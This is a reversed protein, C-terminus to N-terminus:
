SSPGREELAHFLRYKIVPLKRPNELFDRHAEKVVPDGYNLYVHRIDWEGLCIQSDGGYLHFTTVPDDSNLANVFSQWEQGFKRIDIIEPMRKKRRFRAGIKNKLNSKRTNVLRPECGIRERLFNLDSLGLIPIYGPLSRHPKTLYPIGEFRRELALLNSLDHSFLGDSGAFLPLGHFRKRWDDSDVGLLIQKVRLKQKTDLGAFHNKIELYLFDRYQLLYRDGLRISKSYDNEFSPDSTNWYGHFVMGDTPIFQKMGLRIGKKYLTIICLDGSSPLGVAGSGFENQFKTMLIQGPFDIPRNIQKKNYYIPVECSSCYFQIEKKEEGLHTSHRKLALRYGRVFRDVKGYQLQGNKAIMIQQGSELVFEPFNMIASLIAVGHHKELSTLAKQRFSPNGNELLQRLLSWETPNFHAGDQQIELHRNGAYIYICEPEHVLAHRILQVPYHVSNLHQKHTIKALESELDISFHIDNM